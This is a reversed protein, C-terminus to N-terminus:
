RSEFLWSSCEQATYDMLRCQWPFGIQEREILFEVRMHCNLMQLNFRSVGWCPTPHVWNFFFSMLVLTSKACHSIPNRSPLMSTFEQIISVCAVSVFLPPRGTTDEKRHNTLTIFWHSEPPYYRVTHARAVPRKWLLFNLDDTHLLHPRLLSIVADLINLKM